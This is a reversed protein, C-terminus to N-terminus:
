SEPSPSSRHGPDADVAASPQQELVPDLVVLYHDAPRNLLVDRFTIDVDPESDAFCSVYKTEAKKKVAATM